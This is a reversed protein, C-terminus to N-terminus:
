LILRLITLVTATIIYIVMTPSIFVWVIERLRNKQIPIGFADNKDKRRKKLDIAWIFASVAASLIVAAHAAFLFVRADAPDLRAAMLPLLLSLLNNVIHLIVSPLLSHSSKRLCAFIVGAAFTYPLARLSNHMLAFLLASGIVAVSSGHEELASYICGRFLLEECLAPLIVANIIAVCIGIWGSPLEAATEQPVGILDFLYGGLDSITLIVGLTPLFLWEFNRPFALRVDIKGRVRRPTVVCCFVAPLIFALIYVAASIAGCIIVTASEGIDPSEQIRLNLWRGVAGAGHLVVTHLLMTVGVRESATHSTSCRLKKYANKQSAENVKAGGGGIVSYM